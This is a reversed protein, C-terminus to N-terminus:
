NDSYHKTSLEDKMYPKCFFWIGRMQIQATTLPKCLDKLQNSLKVRGRQLDKDSQRKFELILFSLFEVVKDYRLRGIQIALEELGGNFDEIETKHIRDKM